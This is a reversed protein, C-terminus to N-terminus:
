VAYTANGYGRNVHENPFLAIGLKILSVAEAQVPYAEPVIPRNGLSPRHSGWDVEVAVHAWYKGDERLAMFPKSLVTFPRAGWPGAGSHGDDNLRECVYLGGVDLQDVHLIRTRERESLLTTM